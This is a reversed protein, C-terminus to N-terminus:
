RPSALLAHRRLRNKLETEGIVGRAGDEGSVPDPISTLVWSYIEGWGEGEAAARADPPLRTWCTLFAEHFGWFSEREGLFARAIRLLERDPRTM